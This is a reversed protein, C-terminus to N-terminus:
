ADQEIMVDEVAIEVWEAPIAVAVITEKSRSGDSPEVSDM